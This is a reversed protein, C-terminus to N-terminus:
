SGAEAVDVLRGYPMPSACLCDSVACSRTKGRTHDDGILHHCRRCRDGHGWVVLGPDPPRTITRVEAFAACIYAQDPGNWETPTPGYDQYLAQDAWTVYHALVRGLANVQDLNFWPPVAFRATLEITRGKGIDQCGLEPCCDPHAVIDCGCHSDPDGGLHAKPCTALHPHHATDPDVPDSCVGCLARIPDPM